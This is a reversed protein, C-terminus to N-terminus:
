VLRTKIFTINSINDCCFSHASKMTILCDFFGAVFIKEIKKLFELPPKMLKTFKRPEEIYGNPLSTFEFLSTQYQFKLLSQHDECIPVSHYADRIDLKAMYMGPRVLHLITSIAKMKFKKYEIVENLRKLSLILCFGEDSKERVFITSIFERPEHRM